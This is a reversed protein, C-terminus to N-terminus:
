NKNRFRKVYELFKRATADLNEISGGGELVECMEYVLYGQYGVEKLAGFFNDYDVIGEGMGTARMVPKQAIYNTLQADYTYRPMTVYDAAITMVIYPQMTYVSERIEEKSLGELTPAWADWGAKVNPQNIEDLMWRMADHHLAIDHHNQVVLTVGYKAAERAALTIGEVVMAYQRDYPIGPREYGTFIRIMNTGLDSALEALQGIYAAQIETHPIGPKDIGATFDSYGALGVLTLGLDEMKKRLKVRADKDYDVLSLHPRKAMLIVGDYGLEKAKELFQDVSLLAQGRWLGSYGISHLCTKVKFDAPNGTPIKQAIAPLIMVTLVIAITISRKM